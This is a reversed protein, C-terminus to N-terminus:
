GDRVGFGVENEGAKDGLAHVAGLEVDLQVGSCPRATGLQHGLQAEAGRM